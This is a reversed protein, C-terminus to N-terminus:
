GGRASLQQAFSNKFTTNNTYAFKISAAWEKPPVLLWDVCKKERYWIHPYNRIVYIALGHSQM